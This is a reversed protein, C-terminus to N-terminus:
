KGECIEATDKGGELSHRGGPTREEPYRKETPPNEDLRIYFVTQAGPKSKVGILGGHEDMIKKCISLGLGSSGQERSYAKDVRYFPEFIKAQEEPALGKGRNRVFLWVRGKKRSGSIRIVGPSDGYKIANDVLNILVQRLREEVGSTWLPEPLDTEIRMKYRGAKIELAQAVSKAIGTLEVARKEMYISKDSMELLQLVMQHMRSSEQLIQGLGQATLQADEGHDAEMLQAYGQITTLPTKLEHTMNNYFEQRSGLLSIIREKDSQMKQLQSGITELMVSFNRSLEGVEDRRGSDALQALMQMDVQERSLDRVVQRTIETLKWVPVLLRNIFFALLLFILGFVVATTQYVLQENQMIQAYLRSTDMRYRIIGIAREEIVVPMSFYVLMTDADPYTMTFAASGEMAKELDTGVKEEPIQSNGSLYRGQTDLVSLNQGGLIRLEHVIDEAIQRYGDEDNNAGQLMLLQRIYILTNEQRSQLERVIQSELSQWFRAHLSSYLIGGGALFLGLVVLMMQFRIGFRSSRERNRSM